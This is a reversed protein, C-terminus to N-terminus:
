SGSFLMLTTCSRGHLSEPDRFPRRTRARANGATLRCPPGYQCDSRTVRQFTFNGVPVRHELRGRGAAPLPVHRGAVLGGHEISEVGGLSTQAHDESGPSARFPLPTPAFGGPPIPASHTSSVGARAARATTWEPRLLASAPGM